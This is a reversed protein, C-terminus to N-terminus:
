EGKLSHLLRESDAEALLLESIARQRWIHIWAQEEGDEFDEENIIAHLQSKIHQIWLEQLDAAVSLEGPAGFLRELALYALNAEYLTVAGDDLRKQLTLVIAWKYALGDPM